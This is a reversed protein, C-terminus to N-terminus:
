EYETTSSFLSIFIRIKLDSTGNLFGLQKSM